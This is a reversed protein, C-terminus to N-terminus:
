NKEEDDTDVEIWEHATYPEDITTSNVYRGFVKIEKLQKPKIIQSKITYTGNDSTECFNM